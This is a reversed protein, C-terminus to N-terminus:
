YFYQISLKTPSTSERFSMLLYMTDLLSLAAWATLPRPNISCEVTLWSQKRSDVGKFSAVKSDIVRLPPDL